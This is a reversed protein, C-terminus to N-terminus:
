RSPWQVLADQVVRPTRCLTPAAWRGRGLRIWAKRSAPRAGSCSASLPWGVETMSAMRARLCGYPASPGVRDATGSRRTRHTGFLQRRMCVVFVSRRIDRWRRSWCDDRRAVQTGPPSFVSRRVNAITSASGLAQHRERLALETGERRDLDGPPGPVRVPWRRDPEHGLGSLAHPLESRGQCNRTRGPSCALNPVLFSRHWASSGTCTRCTTSSPAPASSCSRPSTVTPTGESALGAAPARAPRWRPSPPTSEGGPGRPSRSRSRRPNM